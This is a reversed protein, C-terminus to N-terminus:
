RGQRENAPSLRHAAPGSFLLFRLLSIPRLWWRSARFFALRRARLMFQALAQWKSKPVKLRTAEPMVTMAIVREVISISQLLSM